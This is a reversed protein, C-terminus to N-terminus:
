SVITLKGTFIPCHGYAALLYEIFNMGIILCPQCGRNRRKSWRLRIKLDTMAHQTRMTTDNPYLAATMRVEISSAPEGAHNSDHGVDSFFFLRLFREM